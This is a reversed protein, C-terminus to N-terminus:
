LYNHLGRLKVKQFVSSEMEGSHYGLQPQSDRVQFWSLLNWLLGEAELSPSVQRHNKRWMSIVKRSHSGPWAVEKNLVKNCFGLARLLITMSGHYLRLKSSWDEKNDWTEIKDKKFNHSKLWISSRKSRWVGFGRKAEMSECTISVTVSLKKEMKRGQSVEVLVEPIVKWTM